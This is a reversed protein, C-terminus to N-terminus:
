EPARPRIRASRELLDLICESETQLGLVVGKEKFQCLTNSEENASPCFFPEGHKLPCDIYPETLADHILRALTSNLTRGPHFNHPQRTDLDYFTAHQLGLEVFDRLKETQFLGTCFGPGHEQRIKLGRWHVVFLKGPHLPAEDRMVEVCDGEDRIGLAALREFCLRTMTSTTPIDMAKCVDDQFRQVEVPRWDHIPRVSTAAECAHLFTEEPTVYKDGGKSISTCVGMNFVINPSYMMAIDILPPLGLLVAHNSHGYVDSYVKQAATYIAGSSRMMAGIMTRREPNQIVGLANLVHHLEVLYAYGEMLAAVNLVVDDLRGDARRTLVHPEFHIPVGVEKIFKVAKPLGQYEGQFVNLAPSTPFGTLCTPQPDIAPDLDVARSLSSMSKYQWDFGVLRDLTEADIKDLDNRGVLRLIPLM